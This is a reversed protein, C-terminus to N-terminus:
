RVKRAADGGAGEGGGGREDAEGVGSVYALRPVFARRQAVAAPAPAPAPAPPARRELRHPHRPRRAHGGPGGAVLGGVHGLLLAHLSCICGAIIMCLYAAAALSYSLHHFLSISLPTPAHTRARARMRMWGPTVAGAGQGGGADGDGGRRPVAVQIQALALELAFVAEAEGQPDPRGILTFM